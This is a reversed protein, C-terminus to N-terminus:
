RCTFLNIFCHKINTIGLTDLANLIATSLVVQLLKLVNMKGTDLIKIYFYTFSSDTYRLRSHSRLGLCRQLEDTM